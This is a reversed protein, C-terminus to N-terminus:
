YKMEHIICSHMVVHINGSLLSTALFKNQPTYFNKAPTYFQEIAM